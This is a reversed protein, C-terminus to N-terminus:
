DTECSTTALKNSRMPQGSCPPSTSHRGVLMLGVPLGGSSGCPVNMAPHGTLDFPGTNQLMNFAMSFYEAPGPEPTLRLAKQPTTPLALLDFEALVADYATKLTRRLNQAKAYYRGHYQEATYGATLLALKATAPLDNGQVRRSRSFFEVFHTDYYGDWNRGLGEGALMSVVGEFLM